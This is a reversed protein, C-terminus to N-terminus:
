QIIRMDDVYITAPNPSIRDAYSNVSWFWPDSSPVTAFGTKEFVKEADQYVVIYGTNDTALRYFTTVNVWRDQPFTVPNDQWITQTANTAIAGPTYFMVLQMVGGYKLINLSVMPKNYTTNKSKWQQVNWWNSPVVDGPIYYDVSYIAERGIEPAVYSYLYMATGSASGIQLAASYNGVAPNSVTYAAYNKGKGFVEGVGPRFYSLDGAEFDANFIYEAPQETSTPMVSPKITPTITRTVTPAATRTQTQTPTATADVQAIIERCLSVQRDWLSSQGAAAGATFALIIIVIIMIQIINNKM